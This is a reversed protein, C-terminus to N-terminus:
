KERGNKPLSKKKFLNEMKKFIKEPTRIHQLYKIFALSRPRLDTSSAQISYQLAAEQAYRKFGWPEFPQSLLRFSMKELRTKPLAEVRRFYEEPIAAHFTESLYKLAHFLSLSLRYFKGLEYLRQWDVVPDSRLIMSADAVWRIPAVANYRAGHCCVHFLQDTPCLAETRLSNFKLSIAAEWFSDNKDANWCDRMVRWHIDLEDAAPNKFHCAHIVDLILSLNQEEQPIWDEAKLIEAAKLFDGPKILLDVDDMPRLAPSEYYLVGLAGGKLL